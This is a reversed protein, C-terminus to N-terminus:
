VIFLLCFQGREEVRKPLTFHIHIQLVEMYFMYCGCDPFPAAVLTWEQCLITILVSINYLNVKTHTHLGMAQACWFITSYLLKNNSNYLSNVSRVLWLKRLYMHRFLMFQFYVPFLLPPGVAVGCVHNHGCMANCMFSGVYLNVTYVVTWLQAHPPCHFDSTLSNQDLNTESACDRVCVCVCHCEGM